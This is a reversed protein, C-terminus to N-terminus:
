PAHATERWYGSTFRDMTKHQKTFATVVSDIWDDCNQEDEWSPVSGVSSLLTAFRLWQSKWDEMDEIDSHKEIYLIRVLIARLAEPYALAMFVPDRALAHWDGLSKNIHLETRDGEFSVCFIQQGLDSDPVVTLLPIRNTEEEEQLRPRIRDGEALLVGHRDSSSTIKVRFLIGEHSEFAALRRDPPPWVRGIIGFDFRMWTTQRYAEVYVHADNPLGYQSVNLDADFSLGAGVALLYIRTHPRKLRRRGTYNFTSIPM